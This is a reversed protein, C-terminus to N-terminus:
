RRGNQEKTDTARSSGQLGDWAANVGREYADLLARWVKNDSGLRACHAISECEIEALRRDYRKPQHIESDQLRKVRARDAKSIKHNGIWSGCNGCWERNIPPGDMAPRFKGCGEPVVIKAAGM